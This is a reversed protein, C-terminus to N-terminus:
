SKLVLEKLTNKDRAGVVRNVEKGDRFVILTPISTIRLEAATNQASDVDVKAVQAQGQLEDALEDIFRAIQKCPGCWDAFFDVLTVGQAIGSQFSEDDLHKLNDSM